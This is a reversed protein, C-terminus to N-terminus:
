VGTGEKAVAAEFAASEADLVRLWAALTEANDSGPTADAHTSAAQRRKRETELRHRHVSANWIDPLIMARESGVRPSHYTM